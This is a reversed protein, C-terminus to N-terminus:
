LLLAALTALPVALSLLAGYFLFLAAGRLLRPWWRGGYVRRGALGTYVVMWGLGAWTLPPWPLQMAALVLFWFAHLHLAHVLHETYRLGRNRYLVRLALAFVPLLLFMVEGWHAVVRANVQQLRPLFARPDAEIQRQVARCVSAPMRECVPQGDRMGMRSGFFNLVVTPRPAQVADRLAPNDLGGLASVSGVLRALLLVALSITLYLRLPLVYHKRRGALYQATLEGPRCVLVKLTRWLAGETSVYAGGFQQALELLTPARLRTEQGCAPCFNPVTSGFDQGCNRCALGPM